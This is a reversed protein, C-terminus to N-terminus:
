VNELEMAQTGPGVNSEYEFVFAQMGPATAADIIDVAERTMGEFSLQSSGLQVGTFKFGTDPANTVVYCITTGAVSVKPTEPPTVVFDVKKAEYDVMIRISVVQLAPMEELASQEMKGVEIDVTM